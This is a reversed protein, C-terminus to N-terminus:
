WGSIHAYVDGKWWWGRVRGSGHGQGKEGVGAWKGISKIKVDIGTGILRGLWMVSGRLERKRVSLVSM